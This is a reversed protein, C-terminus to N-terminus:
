GYLGWMSVQRRCRELYSSVSIMTETFRAFGSGDFSSAKGDMCMRVRRITNVRGVHCRLGHKLAMGSWRGINKLKWQTSGGIFLCDVHPLFQFIDEEEMGDQLVFALPYGDLIPIWELAMRITEEANGVSDPIVVFDANSGLESVLKMFEVSQFERENVHDAYAGNDIAFGRKIIGDYKRPGFNPSATSIMWRWFPFEDFLPLLNGNTCYGSYPVIELGDM